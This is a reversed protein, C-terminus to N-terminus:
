RQKLLGFVSRPFAADDYEAHCADEGFDMQRESPKLLCQTREHLLCLRQRSMLPRGQEICKAHAVLGGFRRINPQDRKRRKCKQSFACTM